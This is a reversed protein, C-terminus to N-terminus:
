TGTKFDVVLNRDQFSSKLDFNLVAWAQSGKSIPLRVV